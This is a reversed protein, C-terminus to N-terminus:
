CYHPVQAKEPSVQSTEQQNYLILWSLGLEPQHLPWLDSPHSSDMLCAVIGHSIHDKILEQNFWGHFVTKSSFPFQMQTSYWIAITLKPKSSTFWFHFYSLKKQCTSTDHHRCRVRINKHRHAHHQPAHPHWLTHQHDSSFEQSDNRLKESTKLCPREQKQQQATSDM